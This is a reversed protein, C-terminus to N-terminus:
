VIVFSVFHLAFDAYCILYCVVVFHCLVLCGFVFICVCCAFLSLLFPVCLEGAAVTLSRLLDGLLVMVQGIAEDALIVEVPAAQDLGDSRIRSGLVQIREQAEEAEPQTDQSEDQAQATFISGAFVCGMALALRNLKLESSTRM